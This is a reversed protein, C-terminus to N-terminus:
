LTIIISSTPCPISKFNIDIKSKATSTTSEAVSAGYCLLSSDIDIELMIAYVM